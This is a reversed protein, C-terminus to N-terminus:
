IKLGMIRPPDEGGTLKKKKITKYLKQYQEKSIRTKTEM